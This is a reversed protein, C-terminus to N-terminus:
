APSADTSLVAVAQHESIHIKIYSYIYKINDQAFICPVLESATNTVCSVQELITKNSNMMNM